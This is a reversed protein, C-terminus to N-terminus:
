KFTSGGCNPCDNGLRVPDGGSLITGCNLCQFKRPPRVLKMVLGLAIFVIAAVGSVIVLNITFAPAKDGMFYTAALGIAAIGICIWTLIRMVDEKKKSSRSM